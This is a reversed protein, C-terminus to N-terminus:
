SLGQGVWCLRLFGGGGETLRNIKCNVLFFPSQPLKKVSPKYNLHFSSSKPNLANCLSAEYTKTRYLKYHSRSVESILRCGQLSTSNGKKGALKIMVCFCRFEVVINPPSFLCINVYVWQGKLINKKM